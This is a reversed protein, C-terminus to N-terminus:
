FEDRGLVWYHYYNNLDRMSHIRLNPMSYGNLLKEYKLRNRPYNVITYKILFFSFEGKARAIGGPRGANSILSRKLYRYLFGIIPPDLWIIATARQFRQPMCVSYNGDVIWKESAM